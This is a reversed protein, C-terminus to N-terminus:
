KVVCPCNLKKSSNVLQYCNTTATSTTFLDAPFAPNMPLLENAEPGSIGPKMAEWALRWFRAYLPHASVANLGAVTIEARRVDRFPSRRSARLFHAHIDQLSKRWIPWRDSLGTSTESERDREVQIALRDLTDTTRRILGNIVALICRNAPSDLHREVDPM